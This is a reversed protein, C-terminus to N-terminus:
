GIVLVAMAEGRRFNHLGVLPLQLKWGAREEVEPLLGSSLEEPFHPGALPPPHRWYHDCLRGRRNWSGSGFSQMLERGVNGEEGPPLGLEGAEM